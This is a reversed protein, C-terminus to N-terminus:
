RAPSVDAASQLSFHGVANIWDMAACLNERFDFLKYESSGNVDDVQMMRNCETGSETTCLAMTHTGVVATRGNMRAVGSASIDSFVRSICRVPVYYM